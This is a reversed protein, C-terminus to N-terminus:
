VVCSNVLAQKVACCCWKGFSRCFDATRRLEDREPKSEQKFSKKKKDNARKISKICVKYLKKRIQLLLLFFDKFFTSFFSWKDWCVAVSGHTVCVPTSFNHRCRLAMLPRLTFIFETQQRSSHRIRRTERGGTLSLLGDLRSLTNGGWSLSDNMPLLASHDLYYKRKEKIILGMSTQGETFSFFIATSLTKPSSDCTACTDCCWDAAFCDSLHQFFCLMWAFVLESGVRITVTVKM